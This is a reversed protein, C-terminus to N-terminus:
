ASVAQKLQEEWCSIELKTLLLQEHGFEGHYGFHKISLILMCHFTFHLGSCFNFSYITCSQLLGSSIYVPIIEIILQLKFCNFGPFILSWTIIIIIQKHVSVHM